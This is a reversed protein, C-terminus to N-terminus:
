LSLGPFNEEIISVNWINKDEIEESFKVQLLLKPTDENKIIRLEHEHAAMILTFLDDKSRYASSRTHSKYGLNYDFDMKATKKSENILYSNV